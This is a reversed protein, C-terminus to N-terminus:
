RPPTPPLARFVDNRNRSSDKLTQSHSMVGARRQDSPPQRLDGPQAYRQSGAWQGKRAQGAHTVQNQGGVPLRLRFRASPM